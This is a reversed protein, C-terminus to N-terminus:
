CVPRPHGFPFGLPVYSSMLLFLVTGTIPWQSFSYFPQGLFPDLLISDNRCSNCTLTAPLLSFWFHALSIYFGNDYSAWSRIPAFFGFSFGCSLGPFASPSDGPQPLCMLPLCVRPCIQFPLVRLAWAGGAQVWGIYSMTPGHALPLLYIPTHNPPPSLPFSRNM